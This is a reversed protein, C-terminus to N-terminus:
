HDGPLRAAHLPVTRLLLGPAPGAPSGYRTPLARGSGVLQVLRLGGNPRRLPGGGDRGARPWVRGARRRDGADHVNGSGVNRARYLVFAPLPRLRQPLRLDSAHDHFRALSAPEGASEPPRPVAANYTVNRIREPERVESWSSPMGSEPWTISVTSSWWSWDLVRSSIM